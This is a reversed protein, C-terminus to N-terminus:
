EIIYTEETPKSTDLDQATKALDILELVYPNGSHLSSLQEIVDSYTMTNIYESERLLMGFAAIASALKTNEDGDVIESKSLAYIEEPESKQASPDKYRVRLELLEGNEIGKNAETNKYKSNAVPVEFDSDALAIEYLVTVQHGSGIEGGDKKDDRFDEAAMLRSEYGILRYNKIYYPNFDVQLKVDKALTLLTQGIEEHLVKRAEHIGDIYHYVGNGNNALAQLKNDQLNGRGFGLISLFVGTERKEEVLKKLEGESTTGVNLDGDTALIIRNNAGPIFYKEAIEYAKTIGASGHTSGHAKLNEIATMIEVRNDLSGGDILVSERGAYTVISIKDSAKLEEVLGLFSRKVLDLRDPGEMSGSVDILFVLNAPKEELEPSEQTQLGIHLLKTQPNWPTDSISMHTNFLEDSTNAEYDYHFYNIMEEIRVGDRPPMQGEQLYRRINAYSATNVDAAFTSLPNYMTHMFKNEEFVKYNETNHKLEQEKDQPNTLKEAANEQKIDSEADVLIGRDTLSDVQGSSKSDNKYSCAATQAILAIILSFKAFNLVIKKM